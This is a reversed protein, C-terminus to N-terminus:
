IPVDRLNVFGTNRDMTGLTTSSNMTRRRPGKEKVRGLTRLDWHRLRSESLSKSIHTSASLPVPCTRPLNLSTDRYSLRRSGSDSWWPDPRPPVRESPEPVSPTRTDRTLTVGYVSSLPSTPLSLPTRSTKSPSRRHSPGPVTSSQRVRTSPSGLFPVLSSAYPSVEPRLKSVVYPSSDVTIVSQSPAPSIPTNKSLDTKSSM